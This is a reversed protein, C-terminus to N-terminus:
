ELSADSTSRADYSVATASVSLRQAEKGNVSAKPFLMAPWGIVMRKISSRSRGRSYAEAEFQAASNAGKPRDLRATAAGAGRCQEGGTGAAPARRRIHRWCPRPAWRRTKRPPGQSGARGGPRNLADVLFQPCEASM